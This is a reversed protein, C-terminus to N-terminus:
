NSGQSLLAISLCESIIVKEVIRDFLEGGGVFETVLYYYEPEVFFEKLTMINSHKM